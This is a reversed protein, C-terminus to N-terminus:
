SSYPRRASTVGCSLRVYFFLTVIFGLTQPNERNGTTCNFLTTINRLDVKLALCQALGKPPLMEQLKHLDTHLTPLGEKRQGPPLFPASTQQSAATLWAFGLIM